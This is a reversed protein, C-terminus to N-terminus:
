VPRRRRAVRTRDSDASDEHTEENREHHDGISAPTLEVPVPFPSSPVPFQSCSVTFQSSCVTFQHHKLEGTNRFIQTRAPATKGGETRFPREVRFAARGDTGDFEPDKLRKISM